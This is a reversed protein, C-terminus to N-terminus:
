GSMGGITGGVAMSARPARKASSIGTDGTEETKVTAITQRTKRESVKVELTGADVESSKNVVLTSMRAQRRDGSNAMATTESPSERISQRAKKKEKVSSNTMGDEENSASNQIAKPSKTESKKSGLGKKPGANVYNDMRTDRSESTSNSKEVAIKASRTGLGSKQEVQYFTMVQSNRRSKNRTAYAALIEERNISNM